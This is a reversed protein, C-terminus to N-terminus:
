VSIAPVDHEVDESSYETVALVAGIARLAMKLTANEAELERVREDAEM